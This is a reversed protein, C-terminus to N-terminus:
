WPSHLAYYQFHQPKARARRPPRSEGTAALLVKAAFKDDETIPHEPRELAKGLAQIGPEDLERLRAAAEAEGRARLLRGFFCRLNAARPDQSTATGPPTAFTALAEASVHRALARGLETGHDPRVNSAEAHAGRIAAAFAPWLEPRGRLLRAGYSVAADAGLRAVLYPVIVSPAFFGPMYRRAVDRAVRPADDLWAFYDLGRRVRALIADASAAEALNEPLGEEFDGYSLSGGACWGPALKQVDADRYLLAVRCVVYGPTNRPSSSLEVRHTRRGAKRVLTAGSARATFGAPGLEAALRARFEATVDAPRRLDVTM